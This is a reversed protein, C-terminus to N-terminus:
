FNIILRQGNLFQWRHHKGIDVMLHTYALHEHRWVVRYKVTNLGDRSSRKKAMRLLATRIANPSEPRHDHKIMSYRALTEPPRIIELKRYRIRYAMDDDEGGWGWYLNSYGNVALFHELRISFVGGVLLTYPLTYNFKDVAVSLHRPMEPCSYLNRDDEPIMDVDHFVFCQFDNDRLAERVGANMLVGKNFTENGYQEVVYVRYELLQRQLLPHLTYLLTTLHELRDRYPIILAVRHQPVCDRPTWSGRGRLYPSRRLLDEVDTRNHLSVDLRLRGWLPPDKCYSRKPRKRDGMSPDLKPMVIWSSHEMEETLGGALNELIRRIRVRGASESVFKELDTSAQKYLEEDEKPNNVILQLNKPRVPLRGLFFCMCCVWLVTLPVLLFFAWWGNPRGLRKMNHFRCVANLKLM